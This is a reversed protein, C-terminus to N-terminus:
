VVPSQEIGLLFRSRSDVGSGSKSIALKLVDGKRIRASNGTPTTVAEPTGAVSSTAAYSRTAITVTTSLETGLTVNTLTYTCYHTGNATVAIGPLFSARRVYWEGELECRWYFDDGAAAAVTATPGIEVQEVNKQM